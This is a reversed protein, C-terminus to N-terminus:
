IAFCNRNSFSLNAAISKIDIALSMALGALAASHGM